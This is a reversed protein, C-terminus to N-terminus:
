SDDEAPDSLHENFGNHHGKNHHRKHHTFKEHEDSLNKKLKHTMNEIAPYLLEHETEFHIKKHHRKINMDTEIKFKHSEKIIRIDGDVIYDKLYDFKSLKEQIFEKTSNSIHYHIGHLKIQELM